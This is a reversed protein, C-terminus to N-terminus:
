RAVGSTRKLRRAVTLLVPLAALELAVSVLVLALRSRDYLLGLLASGAFWCLGFGTNFVGYARARNDVSVMNAVVARMVSEQSAMGIGWCVIGVTATAANGFFVLPAFAAAVLTAGVVVGLGRRDYFRGLLLAAGGDVGMALVYLLPIGEGVVVGSRQFHFAVLTFDAFGAGVLGAAALYLWFARPYGDSVPGPEEIELTRPDPYEVRAASLVLMALTAPVILIAFATRDTHHAALVLAVILPGLMAGTQDMAEHLGFGWGRGMSQTAHSLMADRPPVRIGKGIREAVILAAAVPWNGALALAPVAFLNLAYGGFTIAWTRRPNSAARGSLLRVSYGALEGFGAVVGVVLGSAGLDALFPGTISRAAEYTTDGFLSLVGLLVVLRTATGPALARRLPRAPVADDPTDTQVAVPRDPDSVM